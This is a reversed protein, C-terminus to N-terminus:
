QVWGGNRMTRRTGFRDVFTVTPNGLELGIKPLIKPCSTECMPRDTHVEMTRGELTGGNGQAARIMATAEAHYFGDNPVRGINNTPLESSYKFTLLQRMKEAEIEDATSFGPSTSNMGFYLKGDVETVAVTGKKDSWTPEGFLNPGNNASRFADIWAAGDFVLPVPLLPNSRPVGELPPGFNGGIGSRLKDLYAEAEEARGQATRIAGEITGPTSTSSETRPKWEPEYRRIQQIANETRGVELDLRTLQGYTGGPFDRPSFRGRGGGISRGGGAVQTGGVATWEGAGDEGKPVRPQAPNYGYKLAIAHRQMALTLREADRLWKLRTLGCAIGHL